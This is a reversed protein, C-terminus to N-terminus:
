PRSDVTTTEIERGAIRLIADSYSEGPGRMVGLRDVWVEELWITREGRENYYPEVAV